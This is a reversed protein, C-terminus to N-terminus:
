ARLERGVKDSDIQGKRGGVLSVFDSIEAPFGEDLRDIPVMAIVDLHRAPILTKRVRLHFDPIRGDALLVDASEVHKAIDHGAEAIVSSVISGLHSDEVLLAVRM